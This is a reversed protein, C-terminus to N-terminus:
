ELSTIWIDKVMGSPATAKKSEAKDRVISENQHHELVVCFGPPDPHHRGM